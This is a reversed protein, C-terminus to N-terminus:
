NGATEIVIEDVFIWAQGGAGLHWPPCKGYNTAKVKVYRSRGGSWAGVAFNLIGANYDNDARSHTKVRPKGFSKGDQSLSFEVQRPFWVWSGIDQLFGVEISKVVQASGLDIVVEMDHQYGQWHGTRFNTNGRVGDILANDGGAAYQPEYPTLIQIKRNPDLRIYTAAAVSSQEGTANVSIAKMVANETLVIPQSYKPSQIGPESGDITYHISGNPTISALSVSLTDTFTQSRASFFPVVPIPPADIRSIPRRPNAGAFCIVNRNPLQTESMEFELTGGEMITKHDIALSEFPKGNLKASHPYIKGKDVGPALIEFQRGNELHIVIRPFLPAAVHYEPRGPTVAYLGMASMVYWASMQGCDENGSLGDPKDHYMETLIQHIRQQTKWPADTFNYLWAMHHSPENGHAYQGILGTIDAQERGTTASEATFLSDLYDELGKKNGLLQILGEIDQPSALSYQWANAETFNFNVERPDFPKQWSGNMKGRFFKSVPDFLNKFGQARRFFIKALSDQGMERAMEGICWDDYAYELTKSVSESEDGSGIYGQSKYYSLGFHDLMASHVMAKLALDADWDRLGKMYADAIVSVSHYGIMCETENGALEWVPLRGGDTYMRLFTRIFENTRKQEILTYLPHAARYTDWLSFVSYHNDEVEHSKKDMGLYVGNVDSVLNPVISTHYLATYFIRHQEPTGGSIEIKSLQKRWADEAQQKVGEFDWSPIEKLLNQRAGDIGNFSIGVKVLVEKKQRTDFAFTAEVKKGAASLHTLASDGGISQGITPQSFKAVFYVSQDRAWSSSRRMGVVESDNLITINSALVPDRHRLDIKVFSTDGRFTYRHFGCRTTATLDVHIGGNDLDVSYWGGGAKESSKQFRSPFDLEGLTGTNEGARKPLPMMLIDCYDAIGTGSLHTHSFGYIISDTFHYGSVGDWGELRTDPSLQVMGFPVTAGPYTHGHGGTGIFPDVSAYPDAPTATSADKNGNKCGALLVIFLLILLSPCKSLSLTVGGAWRQIASPRRGLSCLIFEASSHRLRLKDSLPNENM